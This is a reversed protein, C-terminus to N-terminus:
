KISNDDIYASKSHDDFYVSNQLICGLLESLDAPLDAEILNSFFSRDIQAIKQNDLHFACSSKGIMAVYYNELDTGPYQFLYYSYYKYAQEYQHQRYLSNAELLAPCLSFGFSPLSLALFIALLYRMKIIWQGM